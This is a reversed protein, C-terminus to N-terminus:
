RSALETDMSGPAPVKLESGALLDSTRLENLEAILDATQATSLGPARNQQAIGWLTNGQEVRVRTTLVKGPTEARSAIACLLLAVALALLILGEGRSVGRGRRYQPAPRRSSTRSCVTVHAERRLEAIGMRTDRAATGATITAM